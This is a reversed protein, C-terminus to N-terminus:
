TDIIMHSSFNIDSQHDSINLAVFVFTNLTVLDYTHKFNRTPYPITFGLPILPLGEYLLLSDTIKFLEYQTIHDQWHNSPLNSWPSMLVWFFFLIIFKSKSDLVDAPHAIELCTMFIRILISMFQTFSLSGYSLIYGVQGLHTKPKTENIPKFILLNTRTNPFNFANNRGMGHTFDTLGGMWWYRYLYLLSTLWIFYHLFLTYMPTYSSDFTTFVVHSFYSSLRKEPKSHLVETRVPIAIVTGIIISWVREIEVLDESM